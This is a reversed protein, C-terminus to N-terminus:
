GNHVLRKVERFFDTIDDSDKWHIINDLLDLIQMKHEIDTNPNALRSKLIKISEITTM